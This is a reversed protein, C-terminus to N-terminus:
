PVDHPEKVFILGKTKLEKFTADVNDVLFEVLPANELPKSGKRGPSLGIEVGGCQFGAYSSYEYKNDLGLTKEYFAIANKLDSIGLTICWVTKIM